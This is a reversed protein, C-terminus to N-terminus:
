ATGAIINAAKEAIFYATSQPHSSIHVPMVSIDAVRLNETGYVKLQPDVVGGKERPLMSLSSSTHHATFLVAKAWNLIDEDTQVKPGPNVEKVIMDKIPSIEALGRVFKITELFMEADVRREFYHPDFDPDEEPNKSKAHIKGRSFASNVIGSCTLYRKGPVPPNPGSLFGPVLVLELVPSSTKPNLRALQLEMQEFFGAPVTTPNVLALEEKARKYIEGAKDSITDLPFFAMAIIGMTFLGKGEKLLDVNKSFTEPDRLLDMTDWHFDDRLEWTVSVAFHEQVNEGVGPLDIKVPVGIKELIERRGIGSLELLQPSKLAGASIIVEKAAHARHTSGGYGFEVGTASLKGGPGAGTLVRHVHADTLVFLNSRDKNPLYFATASYSRTQTETDFTNPVWFHGNPNGNYPQPARPIGAKELTELFNIEGDQLLAPFGVGLPGDTGFTCEAPDLKMRKMVDQPPAQWREVRKLMKQHAEWNWGPNGLKEWDDIDRAPPKTYCLFNIGSSGGLGKGRAWPASRGNLGEQNSTKHGWEYGPKGHLSGYSASRLLEADNLNASGSELVLVSQTPDESLRAALTLGSTGGGVIIYDFSKDSVKDISSVNSM